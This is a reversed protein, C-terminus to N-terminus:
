RHMIPPLFAAFGGNQPPTFYIVLFTKSNGKSTVPKRHLCNGSSTRTLKSPSCSAPNKQCAIRFNPPVRQTENRPRRTPPSHRSIDQFSENALKTFTTAYGNSPSVRIKGWLSEDSVDIKGRKLFYEMSQRRENVVYLGNPQGPFHNKGTTHDQVLIKTGERTLM